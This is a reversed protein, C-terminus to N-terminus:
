ICIRRCTCLIYNFINTMKSCRGPKFFAYVYFIGTYMVYKKLEPLYVGHDMTRFNVRFRGGLATQFGEIYLCSDSQTLNQCMRQVQLHKDFSTPVCYKQTVSLQFQWVQCQHLTTHSKVDCLLVDCFFQCQHLTTHSKVDCLLVDCFFQGQHLTTHTKVDCLLVDCFFQCQQLASDSKVDFLLVDCFLQCQHLTTHSKADCLLWWLLISMTSPRHSVQCVYCYMVFFQCQQLASDSKSMLYCYMVFSYYAIVLPHSVQCWM